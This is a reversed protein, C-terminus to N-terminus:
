IANVSKALEEVELQYENNDASREYAIKVVGKGTDIYYANVATPSGYSSDQNYITEAKLAKKGNIYESICIHKSVNEVDQLQNCDKNNEPDISISVETPPSSNCDVANAVGPAIDVVGAGDCTAKEWGRPLTYSVISDVSEDSVESTSDTQDTNNRSTQTNSQKNSNGLAWGILGVLIIVVVVIVIYKINKSNNDNTPEM